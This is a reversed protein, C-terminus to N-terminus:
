IDFQDGLFRMYNDQWNPMWVSNLDEIKPGGISDDALKEVLDNSGDFEVFPHQPLSFRASPGALVFIKDVIGIAEFLGTSIESVVARATSFSEYIDEGDDIYVKGFRGSPFEL